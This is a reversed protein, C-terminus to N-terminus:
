LMLNKIRGARGPSSIALLLGANLLSGVVKQHLEPEKIIQAIQGLQKGRTTEVVVYDGIKLDTIIGSDFHYVKGIPNFRVGVITPLM